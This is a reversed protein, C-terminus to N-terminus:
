RSHRAPWGPLKRLKWGSLCWALWPLTESPVRAWLLWGCTSLTRGSPGSGTSPRKGLSAHMAQTLAQEQFPGPSAAVDRILQLTPRSRDGLRAAAEAAFYRCTSDEESARAYLAMPLLDIRGLESVTKFSSARVEPDENFLRHVLAPGPDQRHIGFARVAIRRVAAVDSCLWSGLIPRLPEFEIWGASSILGRQLRRHSCAKELVLNQRQPNGSELALIGATFVEGPEEWALAKECLSWGFDGAVACAM